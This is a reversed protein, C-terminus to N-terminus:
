KKKISTISLSYAISESPSGITLQNAEYITGSFLIPIEKSTDTLDELFTDIIPNKNLLYTTYEKDSPSKRYQFYGAYTSEIEGSHYLYVSNHRDVTEPIDGVYLVTEFNNFTSGIIGKKWNVEDDSCAGCGILVITLWLVPLLGKIRLRTKM